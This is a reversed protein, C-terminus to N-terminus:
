EEMREASSKGYDTLGVDVLDVTIQENDDGDSAAGVSIFASQSRFSFFGSSISTTAGLGEAFGLSAPEAMGLDLRVSSMM